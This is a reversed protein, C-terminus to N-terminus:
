LRSPMKWSPKRERLIRDYINSVEMACGWHITLGYGGHGYNHIVEFKEPGTNFTQRELRIRSRVPRLGTWDEVIRANKLTPVLKCGNEWVTNHDKPNNEESWNGLQFIGGVTVLKSGPIIYPLSYVGSRLDHSLIFHKMWPAYVKIIQGRAPKLEPDPQLEQARIGTCNVIVDFDPALEQFSSIKKEVFQVGQEKLKAMMWPLYSKGELMLATNFWGYSFGPFLKLENATLHRFGLVIDKWSPDPVPEKFINYGSQLFLGMKNADPSNMYGLLYDFTEKNWKFEEPKEEDFVYPQWLGAAGDSATDPTFTDAYIVVTLPNVRPQFRNVICQASSLGIVGAGIVAVRMEQGSINVTQIM